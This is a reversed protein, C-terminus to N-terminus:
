RKVLSIFQSTKGFCKSWETYESLDVKDGREVARLIQIQQNNFKIVKENDTTESVKDVATCLEEIKYNGSLESEAAIRNALSVAEELKDNEEKTRITEDHDGALLFMHKKKDYQEKYEAIYDYDLDKYWSYDTFISQSTGLVDFEGAFVDMVDKLTMLYGCLATENMFQDEIWDKYPKTMNNMTDLQKSFIDVLATVQQDYEKIDRIMYRGVLRKMREVYFGIEDSATVIVITNSKAFTKIKQLCEKWNELHPIFQEAMIMDYKQDTEYEELICSHVGYRSPEINNSKFLEIVENRGTENPEVMDIHAAEGVTILPLSNYGGGPGYELLSKGKICQKPIGFQRYLNRRTNVHKTWNNMDTHVPSIKHEGYFELFINKM